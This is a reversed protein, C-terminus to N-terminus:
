FSAFLSRKETKKTKCLKLDVSKSHERSTLHLAVPLLLCKPFAKSSPMFSQKVSGLSLSDQQQTWFSRSLTLRLPFAPSTRAVGPDLHIHTWISVGNSIMPRTVLQKQISFLDCKFVGQSSPERVTTLILLEQPTQEFYAAVAGHDLSEAAKLCPEPIQIREIRGEVLSESM